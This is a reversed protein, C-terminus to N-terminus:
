PRGGEELHRDALKKEIRGQREVLWDMAAYLEEEDASVVRWREWSEDEASRNHLTLTLGPVWEAQIQEATFPTDLRAPEPETSAAPQSPESETTTTTPATGSSCAVGLVLLLSLVFLRCTVRM